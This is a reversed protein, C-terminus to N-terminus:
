REDFGLRKQGTRREAQSAPTLLGEDVVSRWNATLKALAAVEGSPAVDGLRGGRLAPGALAQAVLRLEERGSQVQQLFASIERPAREMLWLVRQLVDVVPASQGSQDPLGLKEDVGRTAYDLLRYRVKNKDTKKDAKKEALPRPGGTLGDSGDLEVHTGNAFVIAEGADVDASGFTYRWLVYFRTPPDLAALGRAAGGAVERSLRELIAELVVAEVEQLFREAPVVEGNAYEVVGYSTFARLGAGVCAIVLDAGAIGLGWFTEVRERVIAELEPRVESEYQGRSERARKRSAIFISSKLAADGQHAVRAKAETDLPWAETVQFGARRIADVLTAWGATTKHAYVMVLIGSPKLVRHAEELSHFLCNEYFARAEAKGGQRYAAAVCEKKKPTLQGAFHEPYLFWITPRLWVYCVDSLESYSENDYYPPDTIVADFHEPPFPLETASGRICRAPNRELGEARIVATMYELTGWADGTAGGFINIEPYDWLMAFRKLDTIGQVVERANNWRSLSNFRDTIRSLWLALYTTIAKARDPEMGVELMTAHANRVERALTLLICRQRPTFAQRFTKIGYLYSNGTALGANGTPPIEENLSSNGLERELVDARTEALAQKEAEGDALTEDAIYLKGSADPNLTIACMLQQGFGREDGYARVYSGEVAAQCFPCATSSAESGEGPDFGLDGESNAEVVEFGVRRAKRDLKPKLAVYGSSKKRLWTQRYLPVTGQCAPNPCPVTRTWYYAVVSLDDASAGEKGKALSVQKGGSKPRPVRSLLDAVALHTRTLAEKGWKEVDDALGPGYKQPFTTTCLEILHAVPNLEVAHAEAGLRSAELPIAGGGAFMDLVRPRPRRGEVIDEVTVLRALEKSLRDAHARLIDVRAQALIHPVGPYQCLNGVFEAARAREAQQAEANGQQAVPVLAGYVAARCATLPRRARWIHLTSLHGKTRPESSAAESVKEIPIYDEILRTDSPEDAV